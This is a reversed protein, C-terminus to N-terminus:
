RRHLLRLPETLHKHAIQLINFPTMEFTRDNEIGFSEYGQDLLMLIAVFSCFMVDSQYKVNELVLENDLSNDRLINELLKIKKTDLGSLAAHVHSYPLHLFEKEFAKAKKKDVTGLTAIFVRGKYNKIQDILNNEELGSPLADFTKAIINNTSTDPIFRSIWGVHDIPFDGNIKHVIRTLLFTPSLNFDQVYFLLHLKNQDLSNIEKHLHDVTYQKDLYKLNLTKIM